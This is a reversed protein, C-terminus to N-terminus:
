FVCRPHCVESSCIENRTLILDQETTLHMPKIHVFSTLTVVCNTSVTAV